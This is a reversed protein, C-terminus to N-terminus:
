RGQCRCFCRVLNGTKDVALAKLKGLTELFVGGKILVGRRAMATLGSVISVPTSIVLACPCAIVLLVLAKYIWEDWGAGVVLPPLIGVLIALVFVAPTYISAFQDVFKQSPAKSKQAEEVMRIVQSVKSDKFATGVRIEVVGTLNVTGGYVTDGENKKVPTSEGTLPAQNVDTAGTAIYGDTPFTDGARVIAVDETKLDEVPVERHSGDAQKLMAMKPSLNLVEQIAKRARVVSFAELLESLAFLFVVTAGEVYDQLYFAGAVAVTMLVNM